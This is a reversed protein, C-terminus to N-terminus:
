KWPPSIGIGKALADLDAQHAECLPIGDIRYIREHEAEIGGPLFAGSTGAFPKLNRVQRSYDDMERKFVDVDAFLSIRFAFMMAGQNAAHYPLKPRDVAVSLGSLLGGWIQCFTGFGFARLVTGPAVRLLEDLVAPDGQINHTVGCDLVVPPEYMAPASFSMPSGGSAGTISSEPKMRLQVGSTFFSLLDHELTMRTYNGAAGIHGHNRTVMAAMGHEKAKEITKLTAEHAPFYGLGGDGDVLLSNATERVTTINARPNIGNMRIETAYRLM